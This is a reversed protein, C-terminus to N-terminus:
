WPSPGCATRSLTLLCPVAHTGRLTRHSTSAPGENSVKGEPKEDREEFAVVVEPKEWWGQWLHGVCALANAQLGWGPGAQPKAELQQPLLGM